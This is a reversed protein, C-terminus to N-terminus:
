NEMIWRGVTLAKRYQRKVEIDVRHRRYTAIGMLGLETDKFEMKGGQWPDLRLDYELDM